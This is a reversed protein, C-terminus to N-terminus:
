LAVLVPRFGYYPNADGNNGVFFFLGASSSDGHHGGRRFIPSGSYPFVSYDSYWSESGIGNASTEYVDDGYKNSAAKYIDTSSDARVGM